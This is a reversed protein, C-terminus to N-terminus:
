AMQGTEPLKKYFLIDTQSIKEGLPTNVAFAYVYFNHKHLFELVEHFLAQGKYFELFSVECIIFKAYSLCKEAGRMAELEYGQIDFKILDPLPLQKTFVYEDLPVVEVQEERQKTIGFYKKTAEAIELISSADSFSTVQMSLNAFSSGLAVEHLTIKSIDQITNKFVDHHIKLPEFAHITAQPFLAKALLSWTGLNAGIDYIVHPQQNKNIIELLELSDIHGLKLKSAVTNKLKDLRKKRKYEVALREILLPLNYLLELRM